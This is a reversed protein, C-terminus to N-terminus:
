LGFWGSLVKWRTFPSIMSIESFASPSRLLNMSIFVLSATMEKAFLRSRVTATGVTTGALILWDPTPWVLSPSGLSSPSPRARGSCSASSAPFFLSSPALWHLFHCSSLPLTTQALPSYWASPYQLDLVHSAIQIMTCSIYKQCQSLACILFVMILSAFINYANIHKSELKAGQISIQTNSSM